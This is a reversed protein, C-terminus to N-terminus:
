AFIKKVKDIATLLADIEEKTNYIAFSVRTTGPIHFHDMLPMNCHHGGRVAIGETDLITAVDHPHASEFVLSIVGVKKAATGIIKIGRLISLKETAYNLLETEHAAIYAFGISNIYDIAAGLGIAGEINPTGAEFRLPPHTYTTKAFTVKEIMSGGGQYPPMKNLLESKGYLVGIGTPAYMKHGSFAYFDCDLDRVDIAMHSIAQAGDVVVPINNVHAMKTIQKIPNITGLTNSAHTIAVLKTKDSLLDGYHNLDLEGTESINIVRLIAGTQECVMQWPVLNSHHEMTSIIIEDGSKINTRGYSQAALNIAETAGRVFIIESTSKANIFCRVKERAAEYAKTAQEALFHVGRHINANTHLYYNTIADIVVCPKQTTAANDLYILKKGHVPENLIPFQVRINNM